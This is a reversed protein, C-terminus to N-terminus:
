EFKMGEKQSLDTVSKISELPLEVHFMRAGFTADFSAGNQGLNFNMAAQGGINLLTLKGQEKASEPIKVGNVTWDIVLHPVIESDIMWDIIANIWYPKMLPRPPPGEQLVRRSAFDIVDGM